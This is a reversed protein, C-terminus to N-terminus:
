VLKESRVQLFVSAPQKCKEEVERILTDFICIETSIRTAFEKQEKVLKDFHDLMAKKQEKLFSELEEFKSM